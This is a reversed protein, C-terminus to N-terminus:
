GTVRAVEGLTTEGGRVKNLGDEVLTRMGQSVAMKKIEMAPARAVILSRIEESVVMVEFLGVRGRYGTERCRPCGVAEHVQADM